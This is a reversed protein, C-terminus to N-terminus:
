RLGTEITCLTQRLTRKVNQIFLTTCAQRVSLSADKLVAPPPFPPAAGRLLKSARWRGPMAGRGVGCCAAAGTMGKGSSTRCERECADNTHNAVTSSRVGAPLHHREPMGNITICTLCLQMSGAQLM